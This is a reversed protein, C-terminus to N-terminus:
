FTYSVVAAGLLQNESGEDEVLPSDAADGLLLTYRLAGTVGWNETIRYAAVVTAGADKFGDDADYTPLGSRAANAPSVGFYTKMYDESAYTTFGSVTVRAPDLPFTYGVTLGALAGDHADAVDQVIELRVNWNNRDFGVFGGLEVAADVKEMEDVRDNEVDDREARYRAMPGLKWPSRPMLNARLTTGVLEVYWGAPDILRFLPVPALKYDESGEYDPLVAAGLGVTVIRDRPAPDATPELEVTGGAARAIGAALGAALVASLAAMGFVNRRM